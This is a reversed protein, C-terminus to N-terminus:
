YQENIVIRKDAVYVVALETDLSVQVRVSPCKPIYYYKQLVAVCVNHYHFLIILVPYPVVAVVRYIHLQRMCTTYKSRIYVCNPLKSYSTTYFHKYISIITFSQNPNLQSVNCQLTIIPLFGISALAFVTAIWSGPFGTAQIPFHKM